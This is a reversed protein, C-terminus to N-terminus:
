KKVGSENPFEARYQRFGRFNAYFLSDHMARAQHEVPSAHIPDDNPCEGTARCPKPNRVVLRDHLQKDKEWTSPKGDEPLYYSVRACRATSITKLQDIVCNGAKARKAAESRDQDYVFPLHWDGEELVQMNPQRYPHDMVGVEEDMAEFDWLRFCEKTHEIQRKMQRALIQFHPEAMWHNRLTIFNDFETATVLTEMWMWPMLFRNGLQKHVGLKDFTWNGLIAPYRLGSWTARALKAKWWTVEAGAQMGKQNGGLNVPIFPDLRVRRRMKAMPVARSSAANRSFVRHTMVEGHIIYPYTLRFTYLIDGTEANKSALVLESKIQTQKM